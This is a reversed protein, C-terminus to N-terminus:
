GLLYRDAQGSFLAGSQAAVQWGGLKVLARLAGQDLTPRALWDNIALRSWALAMLLNTAFGLAQCGLFTSARPA